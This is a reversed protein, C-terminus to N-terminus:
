KKIQSIFTHWDGAQEEKYYYIPSVPYFSYPEFEMLQIATFKGDTSYLTDLRVRGNPNSFISDHHKFIGNELCNLLLKKSEIDFFMIKEKVESGTPSYIKKKNKHFFWHTGYGVLIAGAVLSLMSITMSSKEILFAFSFTAIGLVLLVVATIIASHNTKTVIESHTSTLLVEEEHLNISADM